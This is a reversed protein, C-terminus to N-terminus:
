RTRPEFGRPRVVKRKVICTSVPDTSKGIMVTNQEHGYQTRVLRARARPTERVPCRFSASFLFLFLTTQTSTTEVGARATMRGDSVGYRSGIRHAHRPFPSPEKRKRAGQQQGSPSSRLSDINQGIRRETLLPATPAEHRFLYGSPSQRDRVPDVPESTAESQKAEPIPAPRHPLLHANM